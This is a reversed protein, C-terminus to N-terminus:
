KKKRRRSKKKIAPVFSKEVVIEKGQEDVEVAEGKAILTKGLSRNTNLIDGIRNRGVDAKLKVRM